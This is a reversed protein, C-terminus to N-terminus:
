SRPLPWHSIGASRTSRSSIKWPLGGDFGVLDRMHERVHADFVISRLARLNCRGPFLRRTKEGSWRRRSPAACRAVCRSASGAADALGDDIGYAVREDDEIGVHPDDRRAPVEQKSTRPFHAPPDDSAAQFVELLPLPIDRRQAGQEIVDHRVVPWKVVEQELVLKGHKPVADELEVRALDMQRANVAM